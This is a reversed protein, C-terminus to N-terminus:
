VGTPVSLKAGPRLESIQARQPFDAWFEDGAIRIWNHDAM